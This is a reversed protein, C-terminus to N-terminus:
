VSSPCSSTLKPAKATGKINDEQNVQLALIKTATNAPKKPKDEKNSIGLEKLTITLTLMFGASPALTPLSSPLTTTLPSPTPSYLPSSQGANNTGLM